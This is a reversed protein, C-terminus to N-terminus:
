NDWRLAGKKWAYIFAVLLIGVFGMMSWFIDHGITNVYDKFIIAWPYMFVVEIDFLVFLMAVIYFKVSFRPQAEGLPLMGCEYASDKMANRKSSKGLMVSLLLTVGAFGSAILAQLLIPLYSEIMASSYNSLVLASPSVTLHHYALPGYANPALFLGNRDM